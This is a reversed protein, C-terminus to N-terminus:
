QEELLRCRKERKWTKRGLIIILCLLGTSIALWLPPVLLTTLPVTMQPAPNRLCSARVSGAAPSHDNELSFYFWVSDSVDDMTGIWGVLQRREGPQLSFRTEPLRGYDPGRSGNFVCSVSSESDAVLVVDFQWLSRTWSIMVTAEPYTGTLAFDKVMPRTMCASLIAYSENMALFFGLPFLILLVVPMLLILLVTVPCFILTFPRNILLLIREQMLRLLRTL